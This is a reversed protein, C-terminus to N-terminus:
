YTNKGFFRRITANGYDNKYIYFTKHNDRGSEYAIKFRVPYCECEENYEDREIVEAEISEGNNYFSYHDKLLKVAEQDSPSWMPSCATFATLLSLAMLLISIKTIKRIDIVKKMMERGKIKLTM